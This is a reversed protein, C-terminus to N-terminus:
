NCIFGRRRRRRRRMRLFVHPTSNNRKEGESVGRQGESVGREQGRL